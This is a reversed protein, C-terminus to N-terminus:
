SSAISPRANTLSSLIEFPSNRSFISPGNRFAKVLSFMLFANSIVPVQGTSRELIVAVCSAGALPRDMVASGIVLRVEGTLTQTLRISANACNPSLGVGTSSNGIGLGSSEGERGKCTIASLSLLFSSSAILASNQWVRAAKRKSPDPDVECVSTGGRLKGGRGGKTGGVVDESCIIDNGTLWVVRDWSACAFAARVRSLLFSTVKLLVKTCFMM